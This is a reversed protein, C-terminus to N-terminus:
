AADFLRRWLALEQRCIAVYTAMKPDPKPNAIMGELSEASTDAMRKLAEPDTERLHDYLREAVQTAAVLKIQMAKTEALM